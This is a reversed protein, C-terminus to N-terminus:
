PNKEVKGKWIQFESYSGSKFISGKKSPDLELTQSSPPVYLNNTDQQIWTELLKKNLQTRCVNQPVKIFTGHLKVKEWAILQPSSSSSPSSTENESSTTVDSYSQQGQKSIAAYENLREASDDLSMLSDSDSGSGTSVPTNNLADLGKLTEKSLLDFTDFETLSAM